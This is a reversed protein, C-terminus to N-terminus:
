EPGATTGARRHRAVVFDLRGDSRVVPTGEGSVGWGPYDDLGNALPFSFKYTAHLTEIAQGTGRESLRRRKPRRRLAVVGPRFRAKCGVADTVLSDEVGDAKDCAKLVAEAVLKM